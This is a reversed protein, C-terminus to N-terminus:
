VVSPLVGVDVTPVTYAPGTVTALENVSLAMAYLAPILSLGTPEAAYVILAGKTDIVTAEEGM